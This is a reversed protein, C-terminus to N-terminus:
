GEYFELAQRLKQLCRARTPGVSGEPLNLRAALEGYSPPEAQYFLATLLVRCREDIRGLAQRVAHQREIREFQEDPLLATDAIQGAPDDEDDGLQQTGSARRSQRWSERRAATALWAGIREPQEIREIHALLAVWVQQFVEATQDDDLGARRPISYVLRQYRQILTEWARRDGQRCARVLTADDSAEM